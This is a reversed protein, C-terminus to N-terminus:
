ISVINNIYGFVNTNLTKCVDVKIFSMLVLETFIWFYFQNGKLWISTRLVKFLLDANELRGKDSGVCPRLNSLTKLENLRRTSKPDKAKASLRTLFPEFNDPTDNSLCDVVARFCRSRVYKVVKIFAGDLYTADLVAKKFLLKKARAIM